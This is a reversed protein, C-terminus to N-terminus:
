ETRATIGRRRLEALPEIEARGTAVSRDNTAAVWTADGQLVAADFPGEGVTTTELFYAPGRPSKVLAPTTGEAAVDAPTGLWGVLRHGPTKVLIVELGAAELLSALLLSSELANGTGAALTEAPLRCTENPRAESDIAPDRRFSVGRSRLEDWVAQARPLSPGAAGAGGAKAAADRIRGKAADVLAVIAPAAPTVWAGELPFASRLDEGHARLVKPLAERPEFTLKRVETYIVGHDAGGTGTVTLEHAEPKGTASKEGALPSTPKWTPTVVLSLPRGKVVTESETVTEAGPLTAEVVVQVPRETLNQLAVTVLGGLPSVKKAYLGLLAPYVESPAATTSAQPLPPPHSHTHPARHM